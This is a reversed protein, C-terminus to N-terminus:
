LFNTKAFIRHLFAHFETLLGSLGGLVHGVNLEDLLPSRFNMLTGRASVGYKLLRNKACTALM